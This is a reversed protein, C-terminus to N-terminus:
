AAKKFPGAAWGPMCPHTVDSRMPMLVGFAYPVNGFYVAAANNDDDARITVCNLAKDRKENLFRCVKEFDAVYRANYWGASKGETDRCIRRWEPFTGDITKNDAYQNGAISVTVQNSALVDTSEITLPKDLNGVLKIKRLVDAGFDINLGHPLDAFDKTFMADKDHAAVLRHGDTAIVLLGDAKGDVQPAMELHVGNLYYRIDQDAQVVSAAAIFAARSITIHM